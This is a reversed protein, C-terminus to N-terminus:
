QNEQGPYALLTVEWAKANEKPSRHAQQFTRIFAKLQQVDEPTLYCVDNMMDGAQETDALSGPDLSRLYRKFGQWTDDMLYDLLVEKETQLDDKDGARLAVDVPVRRYFKACIGRILETHDLAVLGLGELKRLHFTVSSPSIGLELSLQKATMPTGRLALVKLLRQRQPNMFIDLEHRTGITITQDLQIVDRTVYIM